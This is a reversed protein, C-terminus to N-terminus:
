WGSSLHDLSAPGEMQQCWPSITWPSCVTQPRPSKLLPVASLHLEFADSEWGPSLERWGPDRTAFVRGLTWPQARGAASLVAPAWPGQVGVQPLRFREGNPLEVKSLASVLQGGWGKRWSGDEPDESTLEGFVGCFCCGAQVIEELSSFFHSCQGGWKMLGAYGQCWLRVLLCWFSVDGASRVWSFM